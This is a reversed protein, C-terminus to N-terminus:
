FSFLLTTNHLPRNLDRGAGGEREGLMGARGAELVSLRPWEGLKM